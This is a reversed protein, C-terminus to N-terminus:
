LLPKLGSYECWLNDLVAGTTCMAKHQGGQIRFYIQYRIDPSANPGGAHCLKQHLLVLDGKRARLQKSPGADPRTHAFFPEKPAARFRESVFPHTVRHSGPWVVLNGANGRQVDSLAVGCLLTFPTHNGCREMGDLHWRHNPLGEPGDEIRLNPATAAVQCGRQPVADQGVLEQIIEWADSQYLLDLLVPSKYLTPDPHFLNSNVHRRATDTLVDSVVGPLQLYGHEIFFRKAADTLHTSVGTRARAKLHNGLLGGCFVQDYHGYRKIRWSTCCGGGSSSSSPSQALGGDRVALYMKTAVNQLTSAGNESTVTWLMKPVPGSNGTLDPAGEPSDHSRLFSSRDSPCTVDGFDPFPNSPICNEDSHTDTNPDTHRHKDHQTFRSPHAVFAAVNRGGVASSLQWFPGFRLAHEPNGGDGTLAVLEVVDGHTVALQACGNAHGTGGACGECCHEKM